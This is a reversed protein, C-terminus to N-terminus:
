EMQGKHLALKSGSKEEFLVQEGTTRTRSDPLSMELSITASLSLALKPLVLETRLVFPSNPDDWM